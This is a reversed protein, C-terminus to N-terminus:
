WVDVFPRKKGERPVPPPVSGLASSVYHRTDAPDIVDDVQFSVGAGLAKGRQYAADVLEEYRALRADPDEIAALENRFGLKVQGELGMGGFEATPWAGVAFPEKFSGGAMAQAGLGYAKRVVIMVMPVSLNAGIVFLRNCHRVLATKEIEPGVMMGPTDCLVLLPIDFADCLQMFRAAKDAGDSDVAGSLYRPNNAIVGIPRGEIRIFATVMGPGFARRLELVSDLDAITELVQYTDYVRLRNEPVLHRLRRQDLADWDKVTGQFYSLYKKTAAVAEEEDRVAIDVVGNPVQVDMPGIEEPRFVGLNGGEVLAPGGMGINSDATAIIVDCCGLLSANGAFCYRSTVGVLPVLGSLRGMAAFTPTDLPRYGDESRGQGTSTTSAGGERKGGTGARGGGGEAFLVVPRKWREALNLMRDTKPHNVAGQTGALVTYDYAMVVCRSDQLPFLSGNITGIGTVMGDTPFKRIVEQRPLGTGPTLVLQGHEVFSGPDCLDDINERATRQHTRRRKAVADPRAADLTVLHRDLVEALDPRILDLDLAAAGAAAGEAIEQEEVLALIHGEYVTDGPDVLVRSLRGNVPAPIEHEMKMAEIVLVSRGSAVEDGASVSFSVITGQMPARIAVTGAPLDEDAAPRGTASLAAAEAPPASRGLDLVALPDTSGLRVGARGPEPASGGADQFFRPAGTARTAAVLEGVHDDVFQTSATSAVFDPHELVAELFGINTKVGEIRFDSLALVAKRAASALDARPSWVIVKALLSDFNPSTAYGTYGFTDTRIGGGVPPEFAALRGGSPQTTGDPKMTELNVRAQIAVGRPTPVRGAPHGLDALTAGTALQLQLQVLDTGTVEETVTHEVQLRANAEIFALGAEPTAGPEVLFEFTGLSRYGAAAALRLAAGALAARVDDPLRPAPAIEILKQHRRQISCDRDGLCVVAGSDDGAIQVEVHRANKVLQEVYVDPNGFAAGAESQARAMAEGVEGAQRVIRMGRGGGGAVAKIVLASGAPLAALFREAAAVDVSRSLGPVIPVGHQEALARARVKDGLLELTEAQPGVFTLGAQACRRAFAANESLFGYGPHVADCGNARAAAVLQEADLYARPGSGNLPVAEDARRVHLSRADDTSYVAVTPIELEAAARAVRIAIEGRNAILLKL